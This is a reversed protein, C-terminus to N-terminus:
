ETTNLDKTEITQQCINGAWDTIGLDTLTKVNKIWQRHVEEHCSRCLCVLNNFDNNHNNFDKHHIHLEAKDERTKRCLACEWVGGNDSYVRKHPLGRTIDYERKHNKHTRRYEAYYEKQKIPDKYM